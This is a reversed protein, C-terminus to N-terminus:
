SLSGNNNTVNYVPDTVRFKVKLQAIADISTDNFFFLEDDVSQVYVGRRGTGTYEDYMKLMVNKVSNTVPVVANNVINIRGYLFELFGKLDSAINEKTGCYLFKAEVDYAEFKIGDSPIFVDEGHEDNWNRKPLEKAEPLHKFPMEQCVVHWRTNTDVVNGVNNYVSGNYTQQQVLFKKYEAM